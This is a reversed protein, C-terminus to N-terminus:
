FHRETDGLAVVAVRSEGVHFISYAVSEAHFEDVSLDSVSSELRAVQGGHCENRNGREGLGADFHERRRRGVGDLVVLVVVLEVLRGLVVLGDVGGVVALENDLGVLM